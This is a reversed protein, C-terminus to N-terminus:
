RARDVAGIVSEALTGQTWVALAEGAPGFALALDAAYNTRSVTQASGFHGGARPAQAALVHGQDIWGLLAEGTPAITIAPVQSADVAGLRQVRTFRGRAPRLAARVACAATSTCAKWSLAQDGRADGALALGSALEGAPSLTRPRVTRALDAVVAQSHYGGLVDYWSEIWAVTPASPGAALALEDISHGLPVVIAARVRAPARGPSGTSVYLTRPGPETSQGTRATWALISQRGAVSTADLAQPLENAPALRKAAGFGRTAATQTGDPQAAPTQSVWVGRETAIAALLRGPLNVLRALTAGALGAVLQRSSRFRGSGAWALAHVSSCCSEGPPSEGALLELSTGDYALDLIQQAGPVQRPRGSKGAALGGKRAASRLAVFADSSAPDDEDQAGFVVAADGAPSFGIEAPIVDRLVPAAIQFPRGWGAASAPGAGVVAFSLV